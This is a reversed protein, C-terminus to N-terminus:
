SVGRAKRLAAFIEDASKAKDNFLMDDKGTVKRILKTAAERTTAGLSPIDIGDKSGTGSASPFLRRNAEGVADHLTWGVEPSSEEDNTRPNWGEVDILLEAYEIVDIPDPEGPIIEVTKEDIVTIM